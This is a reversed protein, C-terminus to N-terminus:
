DSPQLVAVFGTALIYGLWHRSFTKEFEVARLEYEPSEEFLLPPVIHFRYFILDVQRFGNNKAKEHYTLPNELKNYVQDRTTAYKGHLDPKDPHTILKVVKAEVESQERPDRFFTNIIERRFFQITFRNFTVLDFLANINEAFFYGGPKLVRKVESFVKKETKPPIYELVGLSVVADFSDGGFASLDDISGVCAREEPYGHERLKKKAHFVMRESYDIGYADWGLSMADVLIQGGGCGADLVTGKPLQRLEEIIRDRRTEYFPYRSGVEDHSYSDAVHIDATDEWFRQTKEILERESSMPKFKTLENLREIDRAM